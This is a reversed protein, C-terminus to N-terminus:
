LLLVISGLVISKRTVYYQLGTCPLSTSRINMHLVIPAQLYAIATMYITTPAQLYAIATMYIATPAQLYAIATM